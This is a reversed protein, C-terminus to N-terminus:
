GLIFKAMVPKLGVLRQFTLPDIPPLPLIDFPLLQVPEPLLILELPLPM